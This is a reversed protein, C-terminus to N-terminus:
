EDKDPPEGYHFGDKDQYGMPVDLVNVVLWALALSIGCCAVWIFM